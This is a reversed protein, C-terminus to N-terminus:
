FKLPQTWTEFLSHPETGLETEREMYDFVLNYKDDGRANFAVWNPPEHDIKYNEFWLYVELQSIEIDQSVSEGPSTYTFKVHASGIDEWNCEIFTSHKVQTEPNYYEITRKVPETSEEYPLFVRIISHDPNAPDELIFIDPVKFYILNRVDSGM